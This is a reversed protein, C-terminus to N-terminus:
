QTRTRFLPYCRGKCSRIAYLNQLFTAIIRQQLGEFDIKVPEIKAKDAKEEDADNKKNKSKTNDSEKKAVEDDSQPALPSKTEKSLVAHINFKDRITM